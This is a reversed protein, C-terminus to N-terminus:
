AAPRLTSWSGPRRAANEVLAITARLMDGAPREWDVALRAPLRREEPAMFATAGMRDTAFRAAM